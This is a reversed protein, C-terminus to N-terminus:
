PRKALRAGLFFLLSLSGLVVIFLLALGWWPWQNMPTEVLWYRMWESM